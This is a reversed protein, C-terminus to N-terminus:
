MLIAPTHITRVLPSSSSSALPRVEAIREDLLESDRNVLETGDTAAMIATSTSTLVCTARAEGGRRGLIDGGTRTSSGCHGAVCRSSRARDSREKARIRLLALGRGSSARTRPPTRHM